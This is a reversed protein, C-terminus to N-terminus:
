ILVLIEQKLIVVQILQKLLQIRIHLLPEPQFMKLYLKELLAILVFKVLEQIRISSSASIALTPKLEM